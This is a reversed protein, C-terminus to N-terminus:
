CRCLTSCGSISHQGLSWGGDSYLVWWCNEIPNWDIKPTTNNRWSINRKKVPRHSGSYWRTNYAASRCHRSWGWKQISKLGRKLPIFCRGQIVTSYLTLPKARMATIHHLGAPMYWASSRKKTQSSWKRNDIFIITRKYIISFKSM